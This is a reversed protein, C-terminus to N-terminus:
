APPRDELGRMMTGIVQLARARVASLWEGTAPYFFNSLAARISQGTESAPDGYNHLWCDDIQLRLLQEVSFTGYELAISTVAAPALYQEVATCLDGQVAYPVSADDGNVLVVDDGFWQKVRAYSGSAPPAISLVMGHGFPGLGTHFDIVGVHFAGLAFEDLIRNLTRNSWGAAHGGFGVGDAHVYQGKFLATAFAAEGRTERFARLAAEAEVRAPGELDPCMLVPHLLEYLPNEPLSSDFACFNRNLDVNDETQRRRWAAGWPNIMHILLAATDPGLAAPGGARLWAIQCGSGALGELGHTGSVLILLRAADRPGFWAAATALPEGEPGPLPHPYVRTEAGLDRCLDLFLAHADAYTARFCDDFRYM